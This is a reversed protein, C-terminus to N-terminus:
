QLTGAAPAAIGAQVSGEPRATSGPRLRIVGHSGYSVLELEQPAAGVVKLAHEDLLEQVTRGDTRGHVHLVWSVLPCRADVTITEGEQAMRAPFRLQRAIEDAGWNLAIEQNAAYRLRNSTLYRVPQDCLLNLQAAERASENLYMGTNWRLPETLYHYAFGGTACLLLTGSAAAQLGACRRGLTTVAAFSVLLSLPGSVVAFYRDVVFSTFLNAFIVLLVFLVIAAATAGAHDRAAPELLDGLDVTRDRASTERRPEPPVQPHRPGSGRLRWAQLLGAFALLWLVPNPASLVLYSAIKRLSTLQDLPPIWSGGAGAGLSLDAFAVYWGLLLTGFLTMWGAYLAAQRRRGRMTLAVLLTGGHIAVFFASFLQLHLLLAASVFLVGTDVRDAAVGRLWPLMVRLSAVAYCGGAMLVAYYARFEAVYHVVFNGTAFTLLFTALVPRFASDRAWTRAVYWIVPVLAAVNLMRAAFVGEPLWARAGHAVINFLPPHIDHVLRQGLLAHLSLAPDSLFLSWAEDMWIDRTAIRLAAITVFVMALLAACGLYLRGQLLSREPAPQMM